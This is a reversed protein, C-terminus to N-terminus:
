GPESVSGLSGPVTVMSSNETASPVAADSPPPSWDVGHNPRPVRECPLEGDVWGSTVRPVSEACRYLTQQTSSLQRIRKDACRRSVSGNRSARGEEGLVRWSDM